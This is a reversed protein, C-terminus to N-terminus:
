FITPKLFFGRSLTADKFISQMKEAYITAHEPYSDDSLAEKYLDIVRNRREKTLFFTDIIALPMQDFRHLLDIISIIQGNYIETGREDQTITYHLDREKDYLSLGAKTEGIVDHELHTLYNDVLLRRSQFMSLQGHIQVFPLSHLKSMMQNIEKFTLEHSFEVNSAGQNIWFQCNTSSTLIMEPAFIIDNKMQFEKAIEIIAPDGVFLGVAHSQIARLSDKIDNMMNNHLLRNDKIYIAVNSEKAKTLLPLLETEFVKHLELLSARIIIGSIDHHTELVDLATEFNYVSIYLPKM